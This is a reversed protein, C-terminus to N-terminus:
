QRNWECSLVFVANSETIQDVLQSLHDTRKRVFARPTVDEVANFIYRQSCKGHEKGLARGKQGMLCGHRLGLAVTIGLGQKANLRNGGVIM